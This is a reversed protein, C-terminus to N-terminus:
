NLNGLWVGVSTTGVLWERLWRRCWRIKWTPALGSTAGDAVAAPVVPDAPDVPVVPDAPDL